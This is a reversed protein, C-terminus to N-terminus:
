HLKSQKILLRMFPLLVLMITLILTYIFSSVIASLGSSFTAVSFNMGYLMMIIAPFIFKFTLFACVIIIISLALAYILHNTKEEVDGKEFRLKGFQYIFLPLSILSSFILAIKFYNYFVELPSLALFDIKFPLEQACLRIMSPSLFLGLIFMLFFCVIVAFFRVGSSKYRDCYAFFKDIFDMENDNLSM